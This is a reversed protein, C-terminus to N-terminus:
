SEDEGALEMGVYREVEALVADVSKGSRGALAVIEAAIESADLKMSM